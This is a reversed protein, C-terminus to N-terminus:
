MLLFSSLSKTGNAIHKLALKLKSRREDIAPFITLNRPFLILRFMIVARFYVSNESDSSSHIWSNETVTILVMSGLLILDIV